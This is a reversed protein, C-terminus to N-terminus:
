SKYLWGFISQETRNPIQSKWRLNYFCRNINVWIELVNKMKAWSIMNSKGLSFTDQHFIEDQHSVKLFQSSFIEFNKDCVSWCIESFAQFCIKIIMLVLKKAKLCTIKKWTLKFGLTFTTTLKLIIKQVLNSLIMAFSICLVESNIISETISNFKSTTHSAKVASFFSRDNKGHYQSKIKNRHNQLAKKEQKTESATRKKRQLVWQCLKVVLIENYRKFWSKLLILLRPLPSLYSKVFRMLKAEPCTRVQSLSLFLKSKITQRQQTNNKM